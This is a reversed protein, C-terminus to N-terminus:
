PKPPCSRRSGVKTYGIAVSRDLADDFLGTLKM